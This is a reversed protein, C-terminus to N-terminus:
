RLERGSCQEREPDARSAPAIQLLGRGNSQLDNQDHLVAGCQARPM